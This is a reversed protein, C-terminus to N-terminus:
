TNIHPTLEDFGLLLIKEVTTLPNDCLSQILQLPIDASTILNHQQCVMRFEIAWQKFSATDESQNFDTEEFEIEWELLRKFSQQVAKATAFPKLINQGLPSAIIIKEWLLTEQQPSLLRGSDSSMDQWCNLLWVQLPLIQPSEWTSVGMDTQYAAYDKLLSASLRTNPSLILTKKDLTTFLEYKNIM